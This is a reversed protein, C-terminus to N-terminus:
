LWGLYRQPQHNGGQNGALGQDAWVHLDSRFVDFAGLSFSWFLQHELRQEAFSLKRNVRVM